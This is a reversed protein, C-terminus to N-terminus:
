RQIRAGTYEFTSIGITIVIQGSIINMRYPDSSLMPKPNHERLLAGQCRELAAQSHAGGVYRGKVANKATVM